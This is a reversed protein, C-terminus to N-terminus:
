ILIRRAVEEYSEDCGELYKDFTGPNWIEMRDLAGIILVEKDLKALSLLNAPVTIRGQKDLQVDAANALTSRLYYLANPDTQTLSRLKEEVKEWESIPFIYLCSNLGRTVVYSEIAGPSGRFRAPLNIRGKQDVTHKFTGKFGALTIIRRNGGCDGVIKYFEEVVTL